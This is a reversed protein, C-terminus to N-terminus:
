GAKGEACSVDLVNFTFANNNKTLPEAWSHVRKDGLSAKTYLQNLIRTIGMKWLGLFMM